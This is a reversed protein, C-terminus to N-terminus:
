NSRGTSTSKSTTKSSKGTAKEDEKLLEEALGAGM